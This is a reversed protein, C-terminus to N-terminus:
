VMRNLKMMRNAFSFSNNLCLVYLPMHSCSYCNSKILRHHLQLHSKSSIYLLLIFLHMSNYNYHYMYSCVCYVGKGNHAYLCIFTLFHPRIFLVLTVDVDRARGFCFIRYLFQQAIMSIVYNITINANAHIMLSTQLRNLLQIM